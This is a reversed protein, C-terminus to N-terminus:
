LCKQFLAENIRSDMSNSTYEVFASQAIAVLLKDESSSTTQQAIQSVNQEHDRKAKSDM